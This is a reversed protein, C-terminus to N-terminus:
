IITFFLDITKGKQNRKTKRKEKKKPPFNNALGLGVKERIGFDEGNSTSEM